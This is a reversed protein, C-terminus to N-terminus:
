KMVLGMLGGKRRAPKRSKLRASYMALGAATTWAPNELDDPWDAIGIALGNRAQCDLIREAMDCMGNLFTGGGVLVVGELLSRGTMGLRALEAKVFLFLEEARAELIENLETRPAERAGRGESSPIEILSNDATLGLLACGYQQKLLEADEYSVKLGWVVDRTLHDAWVPLPSALMLSDGEYVVLDASQLGIDIVAVGRARDEALVAAYAAAIPEFVTEEVAVHAEHVASVLAQHERQPATVIHVNAELRSCVARRPNRYGARGDVTFDQPLLHLLLRDEELRVRSALDVAYTLDEREVERPRGFEYVGRSNASQIGAGGIGLVGAEVTVGARQEADHVAARLTDSLAHQDTLRGKVWGSSPRDGYGLFRLRDEELVCILVRTRSAGADLGVALQFDSAM